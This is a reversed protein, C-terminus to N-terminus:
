SKRGCRWIRGDHWVPETPTAARSAVAPASPATPVPSAEPLFKLIRAARPRETRVKSAMWIRNIECFTVCHEGPSSQQSVVRHTPDAHPTNPSVPALAGRVGPPPTKLARTALASVLIQRDEPPRSGTLNRPRAEAISSFGTVLSM